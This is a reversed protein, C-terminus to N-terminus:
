LNVKSVLNSFAKSFLFPLHCVNPGAAWRPAAARADYHGLAAWPQPARARRHNQLSAGSSRPLLVVVMHVIGIPLPKEVLGEITKTRVM